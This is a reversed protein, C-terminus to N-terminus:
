DAAMEQLGEGERALEERWRQLRVRREDNLREEEDLWRARAAPDAEIDRQSAVARGPAYLHVVLDDLRTITGAGGPCTFTGGNTLESALGEIGDHYPLVDLKRGDAWEIEVHAGHEVAFRKVESM